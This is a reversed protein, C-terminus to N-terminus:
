DIELSQLSPETDVKLDIDKKLNVNVLIFKKEDEEFFKKLKKMWEIYQQYLEECSPLDGGFDSPLCSRPLSEYVEELEDCGHFHIMNLLEKKMFPRVLIMIKDILPKTNLVHIAKLRVPLGEQVYLFFKKLAGLSLRTLHTLKVGRMDFLFIYGPATGDVHLCADIAMSLLKVGDQFVYKSADFIKLRHFIIQYGNPDRVPFVGYELVNLAQQLSSHTVDRRVFYEPTGIRLTYYINICNKTDEMKYYCSHHFLILQEETIDPPLHSQSKVWENLQDIDSKKLKPNKAYEEKASVPHVSQERIKVSERIVDEGPIEIENTIVPPM